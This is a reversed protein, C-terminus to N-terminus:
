PCKPYGIAWLEHDYMTWYGDRPLKSVGGRRDIWAQIEIPYAGVMSITALRHIPGDMSVRAAHFAMFAGEAICLNKKLVYTTIITCASYCPGRLEVKTGAIAYDSFKVRHEPISGGNGFTIVVKEPGIPLAVATAPPRTSWGPPTADEQQQRLAEPWTKYHTSSQALAGSIGLVTFVATATARM